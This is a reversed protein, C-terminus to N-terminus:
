RRGKVYHRPGASRIQTPWLDTSTVRAAPIGFQKALSSDGAPTPMHADLYCFVEWADILRCNGAVEERGVFTATVVGSSTARRHIPIYINWWIIYTHIYTPDYYSDDDDDDDDDSDAHEEWYGEYVVIGCLNFQALKQWGVIDDDPEDFEEEEKIM